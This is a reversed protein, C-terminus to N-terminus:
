ASQVRQYRSLTSRVQRRASAARCPQVGIPLEPDWAAAAAAANCLLEPRHQDSGPHAHAPERQTVPM